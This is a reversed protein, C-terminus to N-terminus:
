EETPITSEPGEFPSVEVLLHYCKNEIVLNKWRTALVLKHYNAPKFSSRFKYIEDFLEKQVYYNDVESSFGEDLTKSYNELKTVLIGWSPSKVVVLMLTDDGIQGYELITSHITQNFKKCDKDIESWRSYDIVRFKLDNFKQLLPKYDQLKPGGPTYNSMRAFFLLLFLATGQLSMRHFEPDKLLERWDKM